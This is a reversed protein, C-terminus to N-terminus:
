IRGNRHGKIQKIVQQSNSMYKVHLECFCFCQPDTYKGRHFSKFHNSSVEGVQVAIYEKCVHSFSKGNAGATLTVEAVEAGGEM